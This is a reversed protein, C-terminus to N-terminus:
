ERRTRRCVMVAWHRAPAQIVHRCHEVVMGSGPRHAARGEPPHEVFGIEFRMPTDVPQIAMIWLKIRLSAVEAIQTGGAGTLVKRRMQSVDVPLEGGHCAIIPHDIVEIGVPAQLHAAEHGRPAMEGKGGLGQESAYLPSGEQAVWRMLMHEMKRGFMPRPEILDLQPKADQCTAKQFTTVETRRFVKGGPQEIIKVDIVGMVGM